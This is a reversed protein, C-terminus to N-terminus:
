QIVIEQKKGKKVVIDKGNQSLIIQTADFQKIELVGHIKAGPQATKAETKNTKSDNASYFAVQADSGKMFGRYQVSIKRPPPPPPQPKPPTAPKTGGGGTQPTPAPPKTGGGSQPPNPKPPTAPKTNGGSQPTPTQKPPPPPLNVKVHFMLPNVEKKLNAPSLYAFSHTDFYNHPDKPRVADNSSGENDVLMSYALFGLYALILLLVVTFLTKEWEKGLKNLFNNM